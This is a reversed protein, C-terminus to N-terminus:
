VLDSCKNNEIWIKLLKVKNIIVILCRLLSAVNKLDNNKIFIILIMHSLVKLITKINSVWSNIWIENM